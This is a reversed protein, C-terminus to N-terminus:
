FCVGAISTCLRVPATAAWHMWYGFGAAASMILITTRVSM